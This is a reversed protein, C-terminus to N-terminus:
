ALRALPSSDNPPKDCPTTRESDLSCLLLGYQAPVGGRHSPSSFSPVCCHYQRFTLSLTTDFFGNHHLQRPRAQTCCDLLTVLATVSAAMLMSYLVLPSLM